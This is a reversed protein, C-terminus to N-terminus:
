IVCGNEYIILEKNKNRLLKCIINKKDSQSIEIRTRGTICDNENVCNIKWADDRKFSSFHNDKWFKQGM